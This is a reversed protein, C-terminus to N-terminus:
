VDRMCAHAMYIACAMSPQKFYHLQMAASGVPGHQRLVLSPSVPNFRVSTVTDAGWTFSQLPESRTHDWIDVSAGATAFQSRDWHHDIARLANRASFEMLPEQEDLVVGAELPAYPVQTILFMSIILICLAWACTPGSHAAQCVFRQQMSGLIDQKRLGGDVAM